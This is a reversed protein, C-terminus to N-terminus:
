NHLLRAMDGLEGSQTRLHILLMYELRTRLREFEPDCCSCTYSCNDDDALEAAEILEYDHVARAFTAPTLESCHACQGCIWYNERSESLSHEPSSEQEAWHHRQEEPLKIWVSFETPTAVKKFMSTTRVGWRGLHRYEHHYAYVDKSTDRDDSNLTVPQTLVAKIIAARVRHSYGINCDDIM